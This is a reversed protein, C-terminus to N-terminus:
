HLTSLWNLFRDELPDMVSAIERSNTKDDTFRTAHVSGFIGGVLAGAEAGSDAGAVLGVVAGPGTESTVLAGILGGATAGTVAGAAADGYTIAEEVGAKAIATFPRDGEAWHGTASLAFGLPGVVKALRGAPSHSVAATAKMAPSRRLERAYQKVLPALANLTKNTSRKMHLAQANLDEVEVELGHQVNHGAWKATNWANQAWQTVTDAGPVWSLRKCVRDLWSGGGGGTPKPAPRMSTAPGPGVGYPPGASTSPEPAERTPMVPSGDSCDGPDCDYRRGDSDSMTVPSNDAYAYGELQQPDSRDIEPDVSVFRGIAPDYERAGLHTLGTPDTTGGVFGKDDPWAPATGRPTGFPTQSRRVASQDAAAVALEQTRQHDLFLWTVGAGTRVATTRGAHSYYRTTTVAGSSATFRLEMGPLYLTAGSSDHRLLRNGDADYVYTTTDPGDTV